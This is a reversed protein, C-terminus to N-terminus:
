ARLLLSGKPLSLIEQYTKEGLVRTVLDLQQADQTTLKGDFLLLEKAHIPGMLSPFVPSSFSVASSPTQKFPLSFISNTSAYVSIYDWHQYLYELQQGM